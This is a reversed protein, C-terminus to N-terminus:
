CVKLEYICDKLVNIIRKVDKDKLSPYIPLSFIRRYVLETVPLKINRSATKYASQKHVPPDFHVSAGIGKENLLTVLKDRSIKNGKTRPTYMQYVHKCDIDEIPPEIEEIFSIKENFTEVIERRRENMYDIKKLQVVGMSAQLDTM